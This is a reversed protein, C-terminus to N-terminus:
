DKKSEEYYFFGELVRKKKKAEGRCYRSITGQSVYLAKAAATVSEYVDETGDPKRHIVTRYRSGRNRKSVEAQSTLKLNWLEFNTSCMDRHMLVGPKGDFFCMRMIWNMSKEYPKGDKSLVYKVQKNKRKIRPKLKKGTRKNFVFGDSTAYYLGEFGPIDAKIKTQM